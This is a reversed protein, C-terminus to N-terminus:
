WLLLSGSIFMLAGARTVAGSVCAPAFTSLIICVSGAVFFVVALRQQIM